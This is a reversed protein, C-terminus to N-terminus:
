KRIIKLDEFVINIWEGQSNREVSYVLLSDVRSVISMTNLLKNYIYIYMLEGVQRNLNLTDDPTRKTIYFGGGRSPSSIYYGNKYLETFFLGGSWFKRSGKVIEDGRVRFFSESRFYKNDYYVSDIEHNELNGEPTITIKRVTHLPYHATDKYTFPNHGNFNYEDKIIINITDISSKPVYTGVLSDGAYVVILDPEEKSVLQKQGFIGSCILLPILFSLLRFHNNKM